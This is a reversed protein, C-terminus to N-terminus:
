RHVRCYESFPLRSTQCNNIAAQDEYGIAIGCLTFEDQQYGLTEALVQDLSALAGIACSALGQAHAALMLTHIFGGADLWSGQELRRDMTVVLGVPAGFFQYNRRQLQWRAAKDSRAVGAAQYLCKAAGTVRQKFPACLPTPYYQYPTCFAGADASALLKKSLRALPEGTLLHCFGPQINGGSATQRASAILTQLMELDVPQDAFSRTSHRSALAQSVTLM